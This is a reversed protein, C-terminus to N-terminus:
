GGKLTVDATNLLKEAYEVGFPLISVEQSSAYRVMHLRQQQLVQLNHILVVLHLELDILEANGTLIAWTSRYIPINNHFAFRLWFLGDFVDAGCLYFLWISIPDLCGFIHIPTEM